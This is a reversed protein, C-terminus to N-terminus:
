FAPGSCLPWSAGRGFNGSARFAPRRRHWPRACWDRWSQRDETQFSKALTDLRLFSLGIVRHKRMSESARHAEGSTHEPVPKLVGRRLWRPGPVVYTVVSETEGYDRYFEFLLQPHRVGPVYYAPRPLGYATYTVFCNIKLEAGVASHDAYNPDEFARASLKPLADAAVPLRALETDDLTLWWNSDQVRVAVAHRTGFGGPVWGCLECNGGTALNLSGTGVVWSAVARQQMERQDIDLPPDGHKAAIEDFDASDLLREFAYWHDPVLRALTGALDYAEPSYSEIVEGHKLFWLVDVHPELEVLACVRDAPANELIQVWNYISEIRDPKDWSVPSELIRVSSTDLMRLLVKVFREPCEFHSSARALRDHLARVYTHGLFYPLWRPDKNFELACALTDDGIRLQPGAGITRYVSSLIGRSLADLSLAQESAPSDLWTMINGFHVLTAMPLVMEDLQTCPTCTQVYVALGELLPRWAELRLAYEYHLALYYQLQSTDQDKMREAGLPARFYDGIFSTMYGMFTLVHGVPNDLSHFHTIEHLAVSMAEENRVLQEVAELPNHSDLGLDMLKTGPELQGSGQFTRLLGEGFGLKDIMSAAGTQEGKEGM